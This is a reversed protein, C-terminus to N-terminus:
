DAQATYLAAHDANPFFDLELPFARLQGPATVDRVSGCASLGAALVVAGLLAPLIRRARIM